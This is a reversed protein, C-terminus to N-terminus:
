VGKYLMSCYLMYSIQYLTGIWAINFTWKQWKPYIGNSWFYTLLICSPIFSFRMFREYILQTNLSVDFAFVSAVLILLVITKIFVKVSDNKILNNKRVLLTISTVFIMYYPVREFLQGILYGIGQVYNDSNMYNQGRAIYSSIEENDSSIDGILFDSLYVRFLYILLPFSVLIILWKKNGKYPLLLALLSVIVIFGASKHFFLSALLFILGHLRSFLSTRSTSIIALGYFAMAMALSVRAYSFWLMWIMIFFCIALDQKLNVREFTKVVLLSACGWVIFRWLFYSNPALYKAILHYVYELEWGDSVLVSYDDYIHFYDSGWFAAMCFVVLLIYAWLRRNRTLSYPYKLAPTVIVYGILIMLLNIGVLYPNFKVFKFM